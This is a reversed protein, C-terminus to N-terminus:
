LLPSTNTLHCFEAAIDNIVVEVPGRLENPLYIQIQAKKALSDFGGAAAICATTKPQHAYLATVGAIVSSMATLVAVFTKMSDSAQNSDDSCSTGASFFSTATAMSGIVLGPITILRHKSRSERAANAYAECKRKCSSYLSELYDLSTETWGNEFVKQEGFKSLRANTGICLGENVFFSPNLNSAKKEEASKDNTNTYIDTKLKGTEADDFHQGLSTKVVDEDFTHIKAM